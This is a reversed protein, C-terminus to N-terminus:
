ASHHSTSKRSVVAQAAEAVAGASSEVMEAAKGVVADATDVVGATAASVMEAAAASMAGAAATAQSGVERAKRRFTRKVACLHDTYNTCRLAANTKDWFLEPHRTYQIEWVLLVVLSMSFLSVAFFSGLFALPTFMMVHDWNFIRCTTCCRNKMMLKQFPCWFLVCVLDCVYFVTSLLVLEEAQFVGSFRLAAIGAALVLWSLAVTRTGRRNERRWASWQAPTPTEGSPKAHRPFMKQCGMALLNRSPFLQFAMDVMWLAWLLHMPSLGDFFGGRAADFAQDWGFYLATVAALVTLRLTLRAQYLLLIRTRTRTM